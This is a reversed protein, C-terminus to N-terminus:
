PAPNASTDVASLADNIKGAHAAIDDIATQQEPTLGGTPVASIKALLTQVDTSIASIKQDTIAQAAQADALTAMITEKSLGIENSLADLRRMVECRAEVKQGPSYHHHTHYHVDRDTM